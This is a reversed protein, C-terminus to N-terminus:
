NAKRAKIPWSTTLPCSRLQQRALMAIYASDNLLPGVVPSCGLSYFRTLWQRQGEPTQLVRLLPAPDGLALAVVGGEVGNSADGGPKMTEDRLREVESWRGQAAYVLALTALMGPSRSDEATRVALWAEASDAHGAFLYALAGTPRVTSEFLERARRAAVIAEDFRHAGLLAQGLDNRMVASLPDLAVARQLEGVAEDVRGLVLLNDGHWQHATANQPELEIARYEHPLAEVPRNNTSLANALGLHADALTSDLAMARTASAVGLPALTDAPDPMYFPLVGYTMSLGAHARAFRPDKQVARRFYSAARVLNEAGRMSWFYRGRLYLDYAEADDTGRSAGAVQATPAGRLAPTLAAVMARTLEDQVTFVDGAPREYTDSWLVKGDSTSTLQATIRLRDGARRVSGEVLGAVGLTRGIEQAPVNKGKFAFSSTRGALRLGPLRSLAHALEDTMGDSFYEDKPDGGTNAFPLVAIASISAIGQAVPAAARPGSAQRRVALAAGALATVVLAVAVSAIWRGRLHATIAPRSGTTVGDLTQLVERASQPRRTPDKELCRAVLQAFARPIDARQKEVPVPTENLHAAFLQHVPRGAFPAAGTLMEYAVCGLAYLDARHDTDPDGAAQEPAMYAPTGISTGVQTLTGGPAVTRSASLAKAIGFDTVVAAEGSLLVNEPKIDRHVVGREHAYALARAVDRVVSVAEAIPMAGNSELRARLSLGDVFPMTYFPLGDTEGASLLPVINAQQLGAALKIERTFREASVGAALEPSLVKVVVNRELTTDHALFVRSMGGGGLERELTYATGLTLQLQARFDSAM